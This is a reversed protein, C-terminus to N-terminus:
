VSAHTEGAHAAGNGAHATECPKQQVFLHSHADDSFSQQDNKMKILM